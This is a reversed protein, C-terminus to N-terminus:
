FLCVFPSFPSVTWLDAMNEFPIHQSVQFKKIIITPIQDRLILTYKTQNYWRPCIKTKTKLTSPTVRPWAYLNCGLWQLTSVRLYKKQRLTILGHFLRGALSSCKLLRPQKLDKKTVPLTSKEFYRNYAMKTTTKYNCNQESWDCWTKKRYKLTQLNLNTVHEVATYQSYTVTKHSHWTYKMLFIFSGIAFSVVTLFRMM